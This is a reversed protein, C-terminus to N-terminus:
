AVSRATQREYPFNKVRFLGSYTSNPQILSSYAPHLRRDIWSLGVYELMIWILSVKRRQPRLFFNDRFLGSFTFIGAFVRYCSCFSRLYSCLFQLCGSLLLSSNCANRFPFRVARFRGSESGSSFWRKELSKASNLSMHSLLVRKLADANGGPPFNPPAPACLMARRSDWWRASCHEASRAFVNRWFAMGVVLACKQATTDTAAVSNTRVKANM